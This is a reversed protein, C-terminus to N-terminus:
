IYIHANKFSYMVTWQTNQARQMTQGPLATLHFRWSQLLCLMCLTCVSPCLHVKRFLWKRSEPRLFHCFTRLGQSYFWRSGKWFNNINDNDQSEKIGTVTRKITQVQSQKKASKRM